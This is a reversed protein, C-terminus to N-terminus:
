ERTSTRSGKDTRTGFQYAVSLVVARRIEASDLLAILNGADIQELGSSLQTTSASFLHQHHDVLPPQLQGQLPRWPLIALVCILIRRRM